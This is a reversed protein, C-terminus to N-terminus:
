DGLYLRNLDVLEVDSRASVHRELNTDFGRASFLLLHADAASPNKSAVLDRIRELRALDGLTRKSETHKAEGLALIPLSGTRSAASRSSM